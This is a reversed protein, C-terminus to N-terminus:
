GYFEYEVDCSAGSSQSVGIATFTGASIFDKVDAIIESGGNLKVSLATTSSVRVYTASSVGGFPLATYSAGTALTLIGKSSETYTATTEQMTENLVQSDSNVESTTTLLYLTNAM